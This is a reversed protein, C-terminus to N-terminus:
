AALGAAFCLSFGLALRATAGLLPNLAAGRTQSLARALRLATPGLVIPLLTLTSVSGTVVLALPVAFAATLLGTFLVRTARDGIRVALTRKRARRDGEIDRLNNVVLIATVLAGVPLAAVFALPPASGSQVFCSGVVAVPGFFVFTAVDGLGHYALPAPGATYALAAAISLVGLVAIPWGGLAVLCLGSLASLMAAVATGVRLQTPTLLGSAAARPPGLREAGDAGRAFDFVDNALNATV